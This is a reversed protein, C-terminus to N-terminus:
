ELKPLTKYIKFVFAVNMAEIKGSLSMSKTELSNKKGHLMTTKAIQPILFTAFRM